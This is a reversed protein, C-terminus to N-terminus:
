SAPRLGFEVRGDATDGIPPAGSATLLRDASIGAADALHTRIVGLRREALRGAAESPVPEREALARVLAQPDEPPAEGAPRATRWAHRAAEEFSHLGQERQERQIRATVEQARLARLDDASIVPQLALRVYPSARLFDAVRQLHAAADPTLVASGPAFTVPEIAVGEVTGDRQFVSGIARFPATVLRGLVNRLARRVADGFSFEPSGLAGSVPVSVRIEGRADKLLAVVLGLPLGVLRDPRDGDRAREVDLRQVVLENTATLEDGVIRYHVRTTLEGRRAIWDLFRQLYPNTRPVAFDRLEGGVDLFFPRGFPAVEGQLDLAANTGVIGQVALTARGDAENTLTRVTVALRSLEESYFPSTTRDIFRLNGERIVLEEATFRLGSDRAAAAPEARPPAPGPSAAPSAPVLAARLPFTGDEEREVVVVPEVVVLRAITLRSERLALGEAVLRAVRIPPADSPGVRLERVTLEGDLVVPRDAGAEGHLRGDLRGAVPADIPLLPSFAEISAAAAEVTGVVTRAAPAVSGQARVQGGGPPEAVVRWTAPPGGPWRFGRLEAHLRSVPPAEGDRALAPTGEVVAAEVSTTGDGVVLGTVTFAIRQDTVRARPGTTLRVAADHIAGEADLRIGDGRRHRLTVAVEGRGREVVLPAPAPLYAGARTVDVNEFRARVDVALTAPHLTGTLEGRGGDAVTAHGALRAPRRGPWTLDAVTLTVERTEFRQPPSATADVVTPAGKMALREVALQGNRLVLGTLTAELSPHHVFPEAQGRRLLTLDRAVLGGGARLAGDWTVSLRADLRGRHLEVPAAAPVYPAALLVDADAARVTLALAAPALAGTGDAELRGGNPLTADVRLRAPRGGPVAGGEVVLSLRPLHLRNAPTVSADTLTPAGSMEFRGLALVGDRLTLDRVSAVVRDDRLFPPTQGARAVRLGELRLQGGAVLGGAGAYHLRLAGALRGAVPQIAADAPIWPQALGVDLGGLEVGVDATLPLIDATGDAVLRGARPLEASLRVRGPAQPPAAGSPIEWTARLATVDLPRARPAIVDTVTLRDAVVELRGARVDGGAYTVDRGTVSVLPVTVLPPEQGARALTLDRVSAEGTARVRGHPEYDVALRATLGGGALRLPAGARVYAGLGALDLGAVKLTARGQLPRVGFDEVELAGPAGALVFTSSARGEAADAMTVIDHAQLSLDDLVWSRAPDVARDELRVRSGSVVLAAVVAQVPEAPPRAAIHAVVDSINFREPGTRELYLDLGALALRDLRVHGRLLPLLHFRATLRELALPSTEDGQGHVRVDTAVVRRTFVNLDVDGITVHRGTLAQARREALARVAVPLAVLVAVLLAALVGASILWIRWRRM